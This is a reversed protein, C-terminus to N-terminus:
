TAASVRACGQNFQIKLVADVGPAACLCNEDESVIELESVPGWRSGLGRGQRGGGTTRARRWGRHLFERFSHRRRAQGQVPSSSESDVLLVGRALNRRNRLDTPRVPLSQSPHLHQGEHSETWDM